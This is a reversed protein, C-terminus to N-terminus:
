LAFQAIAFDHDDADIVIEIYFTDPNRGFPNEQHTVVLRYIFGPTDVGFSGPEQPQNYPM